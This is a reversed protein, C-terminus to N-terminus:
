LERGGDPVVQAGDWGGGSAGMRARADVRAGGGNSLAVSEAHLAVARLREISDEVITVEDNRDAVVSVFLEPGGKRPQVPRNGVRHWDIGVGGELAGVGVDVAADLV